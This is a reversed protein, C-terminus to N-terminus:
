QSFEQLTLEQWVAGDYYVRVGQVQFQKPTGNAYKSMPKDAGNAGYVMPIVIDGVEYHIKDYKGEGTITFSWNLVGYYLGAVEVKAEGTSEDYSTLTVRIDGNDDNPHAEVNKLGKDIKRDVLTTFLEDKETGNFTFTKKEVKQVKYQLKDVGKQLANFQAETLSDAFATITTANHGKEEMTVGNIIVTRNDKNGNLWDFWDIEVGDTKIDLTVNKYTTETVLVTCDVHLSVSNTDNFMVWGEVNIEGTELNITEQYQVPDHPEVTLVIKSSNPTGKVDFKFGKVGQETQGIDYFDTTYFDYQDVHSYGESGKTNYSLNKTINCYEDHIDCTITATEKGNKYLDMTKGFATTLQDKSTGGDMVYNTTQMLENGEFSIPHSGDGNITITKDNMDIGIKDGKFTFEIYKPVYFETTGSVTIIRRVVGDIAVNDTDDDADTFGNYDVNSDLVPIGQTYTSLEGNLYDVCYGCLMSATMTYTDNDYYVAGLVTSNLFNATAKATLSEGIVGTFKTENSVEKPITIANNYSTTKLVRKDDAGGVEGLEPAIYVMEKIPIITNDDFWFYAYTKINPITYTKKDCFVTYKVQEDGDKDKGSLVKTIVSFTEKSPFTVTINQTCEALRVEAVAANYKVNWPDVANYSYRTGAYPVASPMTYDTINVKTNYVNTDYENNPLVENGKIEVKDIKNDRVKDNDKDYIHKSPIVIVM